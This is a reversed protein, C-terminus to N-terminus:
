FFFIKISHQFFRKILNKFISTPCGGDISIESKNMFKQLSLIKSDGRLEQHWSNMILKAILDFLHFLTIQFLTVVLRFKIWISFLKLFKKLFFISQTLLLQQIKSHIQFFYRLFQHHKNIFNSWITISFLTKINIINRM